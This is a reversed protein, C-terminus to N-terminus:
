AALSVLPSVPSISRKPRLAWLLFSSEEPFSELFSFSPCFGGLPFPSALIAGAPSLLLPFPLPGAALILFFGLSLNGGKAGCGVVGEEMTGHGVCDGKHGYVHVAGASVLLVLTQWQLGICGQSRLVAWDAASVAVAGLYQVLM